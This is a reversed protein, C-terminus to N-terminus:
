VPFQDLTINRKFGKAGHGKDLTNPSSDFLPRIARLDTAGVRNQTSESQFLRVRFHIDEDDIPIHAGITQPLIKITLGSCFPDEEDTKIILLFQFDGPILFVKLNKKGTIDQVPLHLNPRVPQDQRSGEYGELLIRGGFQELDWHVTISKKHFGVHFESRDIKRRVSDEDATQGM